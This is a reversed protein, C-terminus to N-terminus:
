AKLTVIKELENMQKCLYDSYEEADKIRQELENLRKKLQSSDDSKENPRARKLEPYVANRFTLISTSSINFGIDKSAIQALEEAARKECLEKNKEVWQYVKYKQAADLVLRPSESAGKKHIRSTSQTTATNMDNM